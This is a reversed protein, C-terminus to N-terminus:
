QGLYFTRPVFLGMSGWRNEIFEDTIKIRAFCEVLYFTFMMATGIYMELWFILNVSTKRLSKSQV